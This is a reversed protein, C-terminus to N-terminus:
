LHLRIGAIHLGPCYFDDDDIDWGDHWVIDAGCM